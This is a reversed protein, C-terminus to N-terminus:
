GAILPYLVCSLGYLLYVHAPYFPYFWRGSGKGKKGNYLAILVVSFVSMWQCYDVNTFMQTWTFDQYWRAYLSGYYIFEISFSTLAMLPLQLKRNGRFLYIVLGVIIYFRGGDTIFQWCPVVAYSIWTMFLAFPETGVLDVLSAFLDYVFWPLILAALGMVAKKPTRERLWDIGQWMCFLIPFNMFIGNIPYFDDARHWMGLVAMCFQISEMFFSMLWVRFFFKKRDHTYHFGDALLYLYTPAVIRGLITFWDPIPAFDIFMYHIHDLVMLVSLIYKLQMRDLGAFRSKTIQEPM